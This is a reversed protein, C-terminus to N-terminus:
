IQLKTAIDGPEEQIFDFPIFLACTLESGEVLVSSEPSSATLFYKICGKVILFVVQRTNRQYFLITTMM